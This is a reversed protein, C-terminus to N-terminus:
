ADLHRMLSGLGTMPAVMGLKHKLRNVCGWLV